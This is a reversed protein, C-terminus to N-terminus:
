FAILRFGSMKGLGAGKCVTPSNRSIILFLAFSISANQVDLRIKELSNPNLLIEWLLFLTLPMGAQQFASSSDQKPRGQWKQWRADNKESRSRLM